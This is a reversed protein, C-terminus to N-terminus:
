PKAKGAQMAFPGTSLNGFNYVAAFGLVAVGIQKGGGAFRLFSFGLVTFNLGASIPWHRGMWYIEFRPVLKEALERVKDM